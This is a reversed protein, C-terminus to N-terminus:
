AFDNLQSPILYSNRLLFRESSESTNGPLIMAMRNMLKLLGDRALSRALRPKVRISNSTTMPKTPM